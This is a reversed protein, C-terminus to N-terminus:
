HQVVVRQKYTKGNMIVHLFYHGGKLKGTPLQLTKRDSQQKFLMGQESWLQVEYTLASAKQRTDQEIRTRKSKESENLKDGEMFSLQIYENAPNPSTQMYWGGCHSVYYGRSVPYSDGCANTATVHLVNYQGSSGQLYFYAEKNRDDGYRFFYSAWDGMNWNFRTISNDMMDSSSLVKIGVTQGYCAADYGDAYDQYMFLHSPPGAWLNQQRVIVDGCATTITAKVWGEGSYESGKAKVTYSSGTDGGVQTLTSSSCDWDIDLGETEGTLTFTANSSCILSPGSINGGSAKLVAAYANLRGYGYTNDFGSPGMDTATEQLIARVQTETLNPNVSLMLAVVGSVQPCAASTGGFNNMYNGDNYGLGGMRDTTRVDGNLNVNGSPTVIDMSPGRQSYNWISGNNDIAGVTVVGDVRGPFIVDSFRPNDNGSACVIISGKGNRGFM